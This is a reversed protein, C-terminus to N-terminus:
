IHVAGRFARFDYRYESPSGLIQAFIKNPNAGCHNRERARARAFLVLPTFYGPSEMLLQSAHVRPIERFERRRNTADLFACALLCALLCLCARHVRIPNLRRHSIRIERLVCVCVCAVQRYFSPM